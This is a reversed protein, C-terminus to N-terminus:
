GWKIFSRFFPVGLLAWFRIEQKCRFNSLPTFGQAGDHFVQSMLPKLTLAAPGVGDLKSTLWGASILSLIPIMGRTVNRCKISTRVSFSIPCLLSAPLPLQLAILFFFFFGLVSAEHYQRSKGWNVKTLQNYQSINM